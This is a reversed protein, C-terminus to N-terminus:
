VFYNNMHYCISSYPDFYKGFSDKTCSGGLGRLMRMIGINEGSVITAGNCDYPCPLPTTEKVRIGWYVIHPTAVDKKRFASSVISHISRDVDEEDPEYGTEMDSLYVVVLDSVEKETMNSGRFSDTLLDFTKQIHKSSCPGINEFVTIVMQSFEMNENLHIWAPLHGITLIRRINSIEVLSCALGVADYLRNQESMSFGTDLVVLINKKRSSELISEQAFKMDRRWVDNIGAVRSFQHFVSEMDVSRTNSSANFHIRYLESVLRGPESCSYQIRVAHGIHKTRNLVISTQKSYKIFAHIPPVLEKVLDPVCFRTEFTGIAQNLKSCLQRYSKCKHSYSRCMDHGLTDWHEVLLPFLWGDKKNERPIWKTVNSCKSQDEMLSDEKLQANIQEVCFVVISEAVKQNLHMHAYSAVGVVDRWGGYSRIILRFLQQFMNPDYEYWVFMLAYVIHREGKGRRCDRCFITIKALLTIYFQFEVDNKGHRVMDLVGRFSQEIASVFLDNEQRCCHFQFRVISERIREHLPYADSLKPYHM